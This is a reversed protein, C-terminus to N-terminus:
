GKPKMITIKFQTKAAIRGTDLLVNQIVDSMTNFHSFIRSALHMSCKLVMILFLMYLVNVVTEMLCQPQEMRLMQFKLDATGKLEM